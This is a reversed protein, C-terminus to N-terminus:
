RAAARAKRGAGRAAKPSTPSTPSTPTQRPNAQGSWFRDEDFAEQKRLMHYVARALRAALIGLAKALRTEEGAEAEV